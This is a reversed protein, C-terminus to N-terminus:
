TVSLLFRANKVLSSVSANSRLQIPTEECGNKNFLDNDVGVVYYINSRSIGNELTEILENLQRFGLIFLALLLGQNRIRQLRDSYLKYHIAGQIIQLPNDILDVPILTLAQDPKFGRLTVEELLHHTINKCNYIYIYFTINRWSLEVQIRNRDITYKLM